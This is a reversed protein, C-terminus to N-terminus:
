KLSLIVNSLFHSCSFSHTKPSSHAQSTNMVDSFTHQSTQSRTHVSKITQLFRVRDNIEDPIKSLIHKLARAKDNLDQFEQEPRDIMFEEVDDAAMRLLSETFNVEVKKKELIKMIIDQTLGPNEKEAKIFAARLTQAASLNVRELEHFVPYMVTYLTMSVMSTTEAENKMEEMTM